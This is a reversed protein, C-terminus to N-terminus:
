NFGNHEADCKYRETNYRIHKANCRCRETRYRNCKANCRCRKTRIERSQSEGNVATATNKVSAAKAAKKAKRLEAEFLKDAAIAKKVADNIKKEEASLKKQKLTGFVNIVKKYETDMINFRESRIAEVHKVFEPKIPNARVTELPVENKRFRRNMNYEFMFYMM